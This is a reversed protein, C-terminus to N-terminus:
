EEEEGAPLLRIPPDGGSLAELGARTIANQVYAGIEIKAKEVTNEIHKGFSDVHFPVNADLDQELSRLHGLVAERKKGSMSQGVEGEIAAIAKRVKEAMEAAHETVEQAVVDREQRFPIEPMREGAVRILTCPVGEGINPSSVFSAWQAESLWVEVIEKRAHHWDTSLGRHLESTQIRIAMFAQHQFDSGHLVTRGNMRSVGIQGFARHAYTKGHSDDRVLEPEQEERRM